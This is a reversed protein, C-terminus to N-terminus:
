VGEKSQERVGSGSKQRVRREKTVRLGSLFRGNELHIQFIALLLQV